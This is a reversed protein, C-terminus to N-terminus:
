LAEMRERQARNPDAHAFYPCNYRLECAECTQKDVNYDPPPAAWQQSYPQLRQFEIEEVTQHFEEMANEIHRPIPHVPYVLRPFMSPDNRAAEWRADDGLEGVFVLVSRAPYEGAQQRYLEAYVRMQYEYDRLERSDKEPMVNSKYDWIEVDEGMTSYPLELAHSVAGSLVDVVGTLIYDRSTGAKLARELRYETQKVYPFFRPGIMTVFREILKAAYDRQVGARYPRVGSRFLREHAEDVLRDIVDRDPIIRSTQYTRNIRDLVDHVLNGFYRQTNTASTFGRVGFFGYQRPCRKFSLIDGTTSYKRIHTEMTIQPVTWDPLLVDRISM